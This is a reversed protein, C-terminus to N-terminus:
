GRRAGFWYLIIIVIGTLDEGQRLLWYVRRHRRGVLVHDIRNLTAEDGQISLLAYIM